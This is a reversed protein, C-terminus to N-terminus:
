DFSPRGLEQEAASRDANLPPAYMEPSIDNYFALRDEVFRVAEEDLKQQQLIGWIQGLVVPTFVFLTVITPLAQLEFIGVGAVIRTGGPVPEITVNLATKLGLLAKFWDGNQLSIHWGGGALRTGSVEFGKAGFHNKLEDGVPGLDAVTLPVTKTTSFYESFLDNM